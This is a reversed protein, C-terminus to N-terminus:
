PVIVIVTEAPTSNGLFEATGQFTSVHVTAWLTDLVPTWIELSLVYRQGLLQLHSEGPRQDTWEGGLLKFGGRVNDQLASIFKHVLFQTSDFDARVDPGTATVGWFHVDWRQLDSLRSRQAIQAAREVARAPTPNSYTDRPGYSSGAPVMVIRPPASQEDVHQMGLLIAGDVLPPYGAAALRAIVDTSLYDVLGVIGAM